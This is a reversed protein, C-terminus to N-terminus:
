SLIARSTCHCNILEGPQIYEGDIFAGEAIKYRLKINGAHVHGPRPQIMKTSHVWIAEEVGLRKYNELELAVKIKKIQDNAIFAARKAANYGNAEFEEKFQKHLESAIAGRDFGKSANRYVIEEVKDHYQVGISKIMSVASIKAAKITDLEAQNPDFKFMFGSKLAQQKIIRQYSEASVNTAKTTYVAGLEDLRSAWLSKLRAFALKIHHFIGADNAFVGDRRVASFIVTRYDAHMKRTVEVLAKRYAREHHLNVQMPRLLIENKLKIM